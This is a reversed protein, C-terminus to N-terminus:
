SPPTLRRDHTHQHDLVLHLHRGEHTTPEFALAVRDVDGGVAALGEPRGPLLLVVGDHEVGHDRLRVPEGDAV